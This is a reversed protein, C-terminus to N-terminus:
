KIGRFTPKYKYYYVLYPFDLFIEYKTDRKPFFYITKLTSRKAYLTYFRTDLIYYRTDLSDYRTFVCITLFILFNFIVYRSKKRVLYLIRSAFLSITDRSFFLLTYYTPASRTDARLSYHTTPAQNM